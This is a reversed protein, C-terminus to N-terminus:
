VHVNIMPAITRIQMAQHAYAQHGRRQLGSNQTYQGAPCFPRVHQALRQVELEHQFHTASSTQPVPASYSVDHRSYTLGFKGLQVDVSSTSVSAHGAQWAAAQSWASSLANDTYASPLSSVSM